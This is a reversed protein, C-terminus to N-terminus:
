GTGEGGRMPIRRLTISDGTFRYMTFIFRNDRYLPLAITPSSGLGIPLPARCPAQDPTLVGITRRLDHAASAGSGERWTWVRTRDASEAQASFRM